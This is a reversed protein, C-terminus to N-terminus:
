PKAPLKSNFGKRVWSIGEGVLYLFILPSFWEIFLLIVFQKRQASLEIKIIEDYAKAVSLTQAKTVGQKFALVHGNPFQVKLGDDPIFGKLLERHEDPLMDVLVALAPVDKSTPYAVYCFAIAM